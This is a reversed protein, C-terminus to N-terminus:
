FHRLSVLDVGRAPESDIPIQRPQEAHTAPERAIPLAIPRWKTRLSIEIISSPLVAEVFMNRELVLDESKALPLRSSAGHARRGTKGTVPTVIAEM